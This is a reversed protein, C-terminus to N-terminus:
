AAKGNLGGSSLSSLRKKLYSASKVVENSGLREAISLNQLIREQLVQVAEKSLCERLAELKTIYVLAEILAHDSRSYALQSGRGPYVAVPKVSLQAREATERLIGQIEGEVYLDVAGDIVPTKVKRSPQYKMMDRRFLANFFLLSDSTLNVTIEKSSLSNKYTATKVYPRIVIIKSSALYEVGMPAPNPRLDRGVTVVIGEHHGHRLYRELLEHM